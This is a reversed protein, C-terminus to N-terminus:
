TAVDPHQRAASHCLSGFLRNMYVSCPVFLLRGQGGFLAEELHVVSADELPSKALPPNYSDKQDVLSTGGGEM